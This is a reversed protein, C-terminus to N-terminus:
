PVGFPPTDLGKAKLAAFAAALLSVAEASYTTGCVYAWQPVTVTREAYFRRALPHTEAERRLGPEDPTPVGQVLADPATMLVAEADFEAYQNVGGEAAVNVAGAATLLEHYLTGAGPAYGGGDWAAVRLRTPAQAAAALRAEMGAILTEAKAEEGLVAAMERTVRAIAEFNEPTEVEYVPIGLRRLLRKLAGTTFVGTVVLDPREALVEEAVGFNAGVRMAAEAMRSTLPDRTLWTVSTIREPPLLALVIQDTCQNLSMVRMPHPPLAAAKADGAASPGASLGAGGAIVGAVILGLGLARM